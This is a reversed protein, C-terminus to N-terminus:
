APPVTTILSGGSMWILLLVLVTLAALAIIWRWVYRADQPTCERGHRSEQEDDNYNFNM